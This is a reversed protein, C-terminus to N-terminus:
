KGVSGTSKSEEKGMGEALKRKGMKEKNGLEGGWVQGESRLKKM